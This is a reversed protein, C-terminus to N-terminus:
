CNNVPYENVRKVIQYFSVINPIKPRYKDKFIYALSKSILETKVKQGRIIIHMRPKLYLVSCYARLSYDTEPGSQMVHEPKKYQKKSSEYVDAPIRIDYRDSSFDFELQESSNRLNWIIIRTGTSNTSSPSNIAKLECLLQDVTQFLSYRLIDQLSAAHFMTIPVIIHEAKIQELYTQSLLGVCMSDENKSFVIADKGLRMSGSKFGNGYIGVPVHGNVTQKDNFGFSLMKYMKDYDMGAGNDTFTLCDQGKIMTKDIWFQKATVDPDYANDILEAIASFSWTHSTSNSHLYNPHILGHVSSSHHLSLLSISVNLSSYLTKIKIKDM